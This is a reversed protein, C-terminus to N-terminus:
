INTWRVMDQLNVMGVRGFCDLYDKLDFNNVTIYKINVSSFAKRMSDTSCDKAFVNFFEALRDSEAKSLKVDTEGFSAIFELTYM